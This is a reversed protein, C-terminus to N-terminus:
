MNLTKEKEKKRKQGKGKRQMINEEKGRQKIQKRLLEKCRAYEV